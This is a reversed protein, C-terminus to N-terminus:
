EALQKDYALLEERDPAMLPKYQRALDVNQVAQEM